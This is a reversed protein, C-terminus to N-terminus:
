HLVMLRFLNQIRTCPLSAPDQWHECFLLSPPSPSPAHLYVNRLRYGTLEWAGWWSLGHERLVSTVSLFM